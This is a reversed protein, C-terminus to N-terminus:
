ATTKVAVTCDDPLPVAVPATVKRSPLMDKPVTVTELLVACSEGGLKDTPECGMVALYLPSVFKVALM